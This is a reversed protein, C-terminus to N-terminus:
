CFFTLSNPHIKHLIEFGRIFTLSNPHIESPAVNLFKLVDMKFTTFPIKVGFEEFVAMYMLFSEDVIGEPRQDCIREGEDCPTVVVDEENETASIDLKSWFFNVDAEELYLSYERMVEKAFQTMEFDLPYM